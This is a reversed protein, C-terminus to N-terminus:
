DFIGYPPQHTVALDPRTRNFFDLAECYPDERKREVFPIVLEEPIGPTFVAAGGYGAIRLGDVEHERLHLDRHALPTEQLDMDYNGPLVLIPRDSYRAFVDEMREYKEIMTKRALTTLRRYDRALKVDEASEEDPKAHIAEALALPTGEWGRRRKLGRMREQVDHFRFLTEQTKFARYMLDGAVIYLDSNTSALVKALGDVEEHIDTLYM